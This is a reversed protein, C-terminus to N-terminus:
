TQSISQLSSLIGPLTIKNRGIKKNVIAFADKIVVPHIIHNLQPTLQTFGQICIGPCMIFIFILKIMASLQDILIRDM